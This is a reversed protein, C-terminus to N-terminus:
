FFKSREQDKSTNVPPHDGREKGQFETSLDLRLAVSAERVAAGVVVELTVTVIVIIAVAVATVTLSNSNKEMKNQKKEM